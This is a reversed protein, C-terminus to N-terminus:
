EGRWVDPIPVIGYVVTVDPRDPTRVAAGLSSSAM